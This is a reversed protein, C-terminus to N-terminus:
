RRRHARRRRAGGRPLDRERAPACQGALSLGVLLALAERSSRACASAKRPRSAPSSIAPSNPSTRAAAAAAAAGFDSVRAPPLVPGRPLARGERRRDPRPQHRLHHARRSQRDQPRRGARGRGGAARAAAQGAGAAAIRRGRRPVAHRRRGRRIQRHAQRHRRHLRGERPRVPDVRGPEGAHRRLQGRRLAQRPARGLRPHRARDTGQRRRIRRRDARPHRLGGGERGRAAGPAHRGLPHHRRRHHAHRRPQAQHRQLEGALAKTALANRLSVQLREPSAPKVVFDAAGARMASVVNDIGGHATQVIVPIDLGAERMRALVGLGDLDPMVLDLVVCDIRSRGPSCRSAGRRRRRRHRAQYGFRQVMAELLRRQVPDDDVILVTESM